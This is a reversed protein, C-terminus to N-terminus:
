LIQKRYEYDDTKHGIKAAACLGALYGEVMAASAEEVGTTDGAVFVNEVTTEYNENRVPVTGSLQAVYKMECGRMALLENLPTLGVSICMVDVDFEQETGPIQNFKEDLQCIIAKELCDDGIAEKVTYGTLIPVGMRRIKSAHVLYGGIKPAADLIAAVEVGAQM